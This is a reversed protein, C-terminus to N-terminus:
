RFRCKPSQFGVQEPTIRRPDLLHPEQNGIRGCREVVVAGLNERREFEGAQVNESLLPPHGYRFDEAAPQSLSNWEGGIEEKAIRVGLVANPFDPGCVLKDGAGRVEPAPETESCVLEFATDERGLVLESTISL